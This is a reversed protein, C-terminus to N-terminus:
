PKILVKNILDYKVKWMEASASSPFILSYEDNMGEEKIIYLSFLETHYDPLMIQKKLFDDKEKEYATVAKEDDQSKGRYITGIKTKIALHEIQYKKPLLGTQETIDNNINHITKMEKESFVPVILFVFRSNILMGYKKIREEQEKQSLTNIPANIQNKFLCYVPNKRIILLTDHYVKLEWNEPLSKGLLILISDRLIDATNVNMRKWSANTLILQEGIIGQKYEKDNYGLEERSTYVNKLTGCVRIMSKHLGDPDWDYKGEITYIQGNETVVIAGAKSHEAIGTIITDKTNMQNSCLLAEDPYLALGIVLFYIYQFSLIYTMNM